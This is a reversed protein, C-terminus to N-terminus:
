PRSHELFKSKFYLSITTFLTPLHLSFILIYHGLAMASELCVTHPSTFKLSWRHYYQPTLLDAPFHHPNRRQKTHVMLMEDVSHSASWRNCIALPLWLKSHVQLMRHFSELHHFICVHHSIQRNLEAEDSNSWKSASNHVVCIHTPQADLSVLIGGPCSILCVVHVSLTIDWQGMNASNQTVM